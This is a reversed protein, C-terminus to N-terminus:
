AVPPVGADGSIPVPQKEELRLVELSVGVLRGHTLGAIQSDHVHLAENLGVSFSGYLKAPAPCYKLQLRFAACHM